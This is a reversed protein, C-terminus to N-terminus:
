LSQKKISVKKIQSAEAELVEIILEEKEVITGTEVEANQTLVYGGITDIEDHSINLDLLRNLDEILMKGDVIYHDKKTKRMMPQEDTDFEDRIEGVIEELIDEVTVIGSTGGYEDLLVTMHVREKQMKILLRNIPVTDIVTMMPHIFKEFDAKSTVTEQFLEKINVMGIIHDKDEGVYPYRTFRENKMTDLHEDLPDEDYLCVMETRPVMIERAIRDDFDFIRDVYRYESHNIEGSKYSETLLLRLEEETHPDDQESLPSAGFMRAVLNATANLVWIFPYMIYNFLVLPSAAWLTVKEAHQIAYTKPALEGFVVNFVTIIIFSFIASLTFSLPRSFSFYGFLKGLLESVTPEGLWGIGLATMTIGLQCASLYADLQNLVRMAAKARKDGSNSLAEIRSKRVKVISFETGVFFATLLILLFIFLINFVAM